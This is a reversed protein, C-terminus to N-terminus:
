LGLQKKAEDLSVTKAQKARQELFRMLKKNRRTLQIERNFDDIELIFETGYPSRLIINEREAQKLLQNVGKARKSVTITKM